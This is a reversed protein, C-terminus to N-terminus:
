LSEGQAYGLAPMGAMLMVPLGVFMILGSGYVLDEAV